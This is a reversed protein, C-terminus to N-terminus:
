PDEGFTVVRLVRIKFANAVRAIRAWERPGVSVGFQESIHKTVLNFRRQGAPRIRGLSARNFSAVQQRVNKIEFSLNKM